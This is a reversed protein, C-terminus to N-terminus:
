LVSNLADAARPKAHGNGGKEPPPPLSESNIDLRGLLKAGEAIVVRTAKIDGVIEAADAIEMKDAAVVNGYVKGEIIVVASIIDGMVRGSRAVTLRGQGTITGTVIGEVRLGGEFTIEGKLTITPGLVSEGAAPPPPPTEAMPPPPEELAVRSKERGFM